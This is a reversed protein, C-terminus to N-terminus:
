APIINGLRDHKLKICYKKIMRDDWARESKNNAGLEKTEIIPKAIHHPVFHCMSGTASVMKYINSSLSKRNSWDIAKVNEESEPVYVLDNPSLLIYKHGDKPPVIPLKNMKATLVERFGLTTYSREGTSINEYIVFFLNTGKAAEVMQGQRIEFKSGIPEYISVKTVPKGVVKELEELGEGTFAIKPNDGYKLLHQYLHYKLGKQKDNGYEAIKAIKDKTFSADLSVRNLSYSEWYWILVKDVTNGNIDKLPNAKIAGKIKKIDSGFQQQLDQLQRKASRDAIKDISKLAEEISVKKYERFKVKGSITEKHLSKRVSFLEGKSQEVLSKAWEGKENQVYKIYRNTGKNLIRHRNKHSVVINELANKADAVFTKWPKRFDRTKNSQLLKNRFEYKMSEDRTQAELTNIYQIHSQTSCAIVIADMAHHRHDIRKEYGKLHTTREGNEDITYSIMSEGTLEELRKFRGELIEKMKDNVGWKHKLEDTVQGSTAWVKETVQQLLEKVKRNIHRTDNLQREIFGKPIETSLLHRRKKGRFNKEVHALYHEVSLLKDQRSGQQIYQMATLKDKEKNAWSEVIVKNGLSDDYFRTRPIIHEVEYKYTFLESLMITNGTYPSICHQEMWLRYKEIESRTPEIAKKFFREQSNQYKYNGNEELIRIKDIDALSDPNGLKLERLIARIRDKDEKNQRNNDYLHKREDATKKLDRALEIRIEDPRGYQKWIDKVLQLTENIIQEAIPNRLTKAELGRVEEPHSCVVGTINESHKGYVIYCALWEPLAQYDKLESLQYESRFKEIRARMSEDLSPDLEANSLKDIREKVQCAINAENWYKGIRMLPLLKHIAKSSYSAYQLKFPPLKSLALAITEPLQFQKELSQKIAASDEVSYLLHWLQQLHEKNDLLKEGEVIYNHRKFVKFFTHRTENGPFETEPPYNLKHTKESVGILRLIEGMKVKEKNNFLSFLDELKPRIYADTEDVDTEWREDIMSKNSIVRLNHLTKWIRFEQFAPSSIPAVKYGPSYSINKGNMQKTLTINKKEYRCEGISSKQSKLPRHYYIIDKTLAYFLDNACLEKQKEKNNAYFKGAIAPIKDKAYLEPHYTAQKEWIAKLEAEYRGRDIIRERIRYNRDKLIEHLFYSGPHLQKNDFDKSLAERLKQWDSKDPIAFEIRTEKKSRIIRIELEVDQNIWDPLTDRLIIGKNIGDSIPHAVEIEIAKKKRIIEETNRIRTIRLIEVRSERKPLNDDDADENIHVEENNAKRNSKFGRRQNIHYLIRALESLTVQEHLAKHRLFYVVWDEPIKSSEFLEHMQRISDQTVPLRHGACFDEPLWGVLKLLEILRQRRLKYRQRLRRAGRAQRRDATKSISNGQEFNNLLDTDMPVIRSGAGLIEGQENEFDLNILAWGISNSGIDLGLIKKM